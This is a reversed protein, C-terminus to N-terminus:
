TSAKRLADVVGDIVPTWDGPRPQRFLRMTPYWPSDERGMMWRWDPVFQLLTWVPRGLAGALHAVSTDVTIILDLHAMQAATDAMDGTAPALDTIAAQTSALQAAADMQLSFFHVGKVQFIPELLSLAISRHRNKTHAPSGAWALGVRFGHDPWPLADAKKRAEEPIALYPVQAPITNLATGFALPLSMLACHWDFSPIPEGFTALDAVGPLQEALRRLRPPLYLIVKGGAAQIMPLYRLFQISDGLGQEAHLLIRAGNLPEGRWSPQSFSRRAAKIQFRWEYNNWGEAFNGQLLQVLSRNCHAEAYEPKLAQARKYYEIAADLKGQYYIANGLNVYAEPYEPKLELSRQCAAVAEDLKNQATLANGLSNYAEAFGPKLGLARQCAAVAEDPRNQATLASSLSNYAEAYDPKIEIARKCATVAEDLKNQTTLISSLNNLAKAYNPNLKLARQYCAIAQELKDQSELVVGLNCHIEAIDPDLKLAREYCAAAEDLKGQSKLANGLNNYAEAYDPKLELARECAAAAEDHCGQEELLFGLNSDYRANNGDSAIARRIMKIAVEPHGLAYEIMGLQHLSDAHHVDIALIQLYSQQAKALDGARHHAAAIAWLQPIIAASDPASVRGPQKAHYKSSRNVTETGGM